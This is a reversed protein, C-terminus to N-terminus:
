AVCSTTSLFHLRRRGRLQTLTCEAGGHAHLCVPASLAYWALLVSCQRWLCVYSLVCVCLYVQVCECMNVYECEPTCTHSVTFCLWNVTSACTRTAATDAEALTPSGLYFPAQGLASKTPRGIGDVQEREQRVEKCVGGPYASPPSPASYRSVSGEISCSWEPSEM